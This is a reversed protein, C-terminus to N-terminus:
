RLKVEFELEENGRQAKVKITDGSQKYFLAIRIDEIVSVREGDLSIVLDDVKLGAKEAASEKGFSTIRLRQDRMDLSVGLKPATPAKSPEPFVVFDAIGSEVEGDSLVIAYDLGNRRFARKPIGSGHRLHGAGTLVVMRYDPHNKLFRDVSEAMTEDWLIQAQYFFEFNKGQPEPHAAFIEKLKGRYEQDSFDLDPSIERRAEQPLSNLGSAAIQNVIERPLNLAIVPLRQARAFDLIPKYLHYDIDWHKFYESRKLFTREDIKGAIYDDLAPQFPKQFMEM